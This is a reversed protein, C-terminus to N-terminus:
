IQVYNIFNFQERTLHKITTQPLNYAQRLLIYCNCNLTLTKIKLRKGISQIGFILNKIKKNIKQAHLCTGKKYRTNLAFKNIVLETNQHITCTHM